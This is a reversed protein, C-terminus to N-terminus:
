LLFPFLCRSSVDDECDSKQLRIKVVPDVADFISFLLFQIAGALTWSKGILLWRTNEPRNGNELENINEVLERLKEAIIELMKSFEVPVNEKERM